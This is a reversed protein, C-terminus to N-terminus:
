DDRSIWFSACRPLPFLFDMIGGPDTVMKSASAVDEAMERCKKQMDDLKQRLQELNNFTKRIQTLPPFCTSADDSPEDHNRFYLVDSKMFLEGCRVTEQLDQALEVWIEKMDNIGNELEDLERTTRDHM